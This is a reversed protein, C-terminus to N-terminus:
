TRPDDVCHTKGASWVRMVAHRRCALTTFLITALVVGILCFLFTLACVMLTKERQRAVTVLGMLTFCKLVVSLLVFVSQLGHSIINGCFM